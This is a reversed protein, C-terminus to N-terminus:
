ETRLWSSMSPTRAKQCQFEGVEAVPNWCAKSQASSLDLLIRKLIPFGLGQHCIRENQKLNPAFDSCQGLQM